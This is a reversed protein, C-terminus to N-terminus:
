YPTTLTHRRGLVRGSRGQCVGLPIENSIPTLHTMGRRLRTRIRRDTITVLFRHIALCRIYERRTQFISIDSEEDESGGSSPPPVRAPNELGVM